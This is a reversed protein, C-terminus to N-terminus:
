IEASETFQYDKYCFITWHSWYIVSVYSDFALFLNLITFTKKLSASNTTRRIPVHQAIDQHDGLVWSRSSQDLSQRYISQLLIPRDTGYPQGGHDACWSSRYDRACAGHTAPCSRQQVCSDHFSSLGDKCCPSQYSEDHWNSSVCCRIKVYIDITQTTRNFYFHKFQITKPQTFLSTGLRNESPSVM